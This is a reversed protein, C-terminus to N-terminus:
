WGSDLSCNVYADSVLEWEWGDNVAGGERWSKVNRDDSMSEDKDTQWIRKVGDWREPRRGELAVEDLSNRLYAEVDNRLTTALHLPFAVDVFELLQHAYDPLTLPGVKYVEDALRGLSSLPPQNEPIPPNSPWPSLGTLIRESSLDAGWKQFPSSPPLDLWSEPRNTTSTDADPPLHDAGGDPSPLVPIAQMLEARSLAHLKSSGSSVWDLGSPMGNVWVFGTCLIGVVALVTMLRRRRTLGFGLSPLTPISASRSHRYSSVAPPPLKEEDDDAYKAWTSSAFRPSEAPSVATVSTSPSSSAPSM